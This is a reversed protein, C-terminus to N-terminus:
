AMVKFRKSCESGLLGHRRGSNENSLGVRSFLSADSNSSLKTTLRSRSDLGTGFFSFDSGAFAFVGLKFSLLGVSERWLKARGSSCKEGCILQELRESADARNRKGEFLSADGLLKTQMIEGLILGRFSTM